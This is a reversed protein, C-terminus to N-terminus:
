KKGVFFNNFIKSVFRGLCRCFMNFTICMVWKLYFFKQMLRMFAFRIKLNNICNKYIKLKNQSIATACVEGTYLAYRLGSLTLPDCAGVADGVFLVNSNIVAKRMGIPTFASKLNTTDVSFNQTKLFDTFIKKYDQKNEFVDTMGVNTTGDYSSVWTYGKRTVGFHIDIAEARDSEFTMQLAINCKKKKQYRSGYGMTGDAFILYNYSVQMKNSLTLSNAQMNHQTIITNEWIQVGKEKALKFFNYDLEVRDIKENTYLFKNTINLRNNLNYYINFDKILSYHCDKINLGFQEYAALTKNTVYGACCKYRPFTHKEIVLVDTIGNSQLSLATSIGAPGAGIIIVNYFNKDINDEMSGRTLNHM